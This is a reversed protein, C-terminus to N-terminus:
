KGGEIVPEKEILPPLENIKEKDLKVHFIYTAKSEERDRNRNCSFRSNSLTANRLRNFSTRMVDNILTFNEDKLDVIKDWIFVIKYDGNNFLYDDCEVRIDELNIGKSKLSEIVEDKLKKNKIEKSKAM